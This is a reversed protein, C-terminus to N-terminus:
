EEDDDLGRDVIAVASPMGFITSLLTEPGVIGSQTLNAHAGALGHKALFEGMKEAIEMRYRNLVIPHGSAWHLLDQIVAAVRPRLDAQQEARRILPLLPDYLLATTYQTIFFVDLLSRRAIPTLPSYIDTLLRGILMSATFADVRSLTAVVAAAGQALLTRVLCGRIAGTVSTHCASLIWVPPAQHKPLLDRLSVSRGGISLLAEDRRRDYKGHADVVVISPQEALLAAFEDATTPTAYKNRLGLGQSGVIFQDTHRRVADGADIFDLVLVKEPATADITPPHELVAALVDWRTASIPIRSVPRTLCLPWDDLLAWEFPLDSILAVPHEDAAFHETLPGPLAAGLVFEARRFLDPVKRTNGDLAARLEDILSYLRGPLLPMQIPIFAPKAARWATVCALLRQESLATFQASTYHHRDRQSRFTTEERGAMVDEIAKRKMAAGERFGSDPRLSLPLRGRVLGPHPAPLSILPMELQKGALRRGLDLFADRQDDESTSSGLGAHIRLIEDQSVPLTSPLPQGREALALASGARRSWDLMEPLLLPNSPGVGPLLGPEDVNSSFRNLLYVAARGAQPQPLPIPPLFRLRPRDQFINRQTLVGLEQRVDPDHGPDGAVAPLLSSIVRYGERMDADGKLLGCPVDHAALVAQQLRESPTLVGLQRRGALEGFWVPVTHSLMLVLMPADTLSSWIDPPPRQSTQLKRCVPLFMVRLMASTFPWPTPTLAGVDSPLMLLSMYIRLAVLDSQYMLQFLSGRHAASTEEAVIYTIPLRLLRPSDDTM